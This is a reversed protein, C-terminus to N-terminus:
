QGKIKIHKILGEGLTSIEALVARENFLCQQKGDEQGEAVPVPVSSWGLRVRWEKRGLVVPKWMGAIVDGGYSDHFFLATSGFAAELDEVFLRVADHGIAEVDLAQELQLNKYVVRDERRGSKLRADAHHKVVSPKLYIRFDFDDLPSLFLAAWDEDSMRTGGSKLMEVAASALARVRVAVVREPRSGQTWVTGTPDLSTGVFWVVNNLGPDLKRWAQFRTMMEDTQAAPMDQSLSLDAVLPALAFDFRSLLHLCRFFATTSSGPTVWPAPHLFVQAAIVELIEESLHHLLLHSSVWKKLLRITSSLPPFRTCLNRIATTHIPAAIFTRKYAVLASTLSDRVSGHLSKEQLATQLLHEERDHYIRTRFCIPSLGPAPSPTIIDLFSTNFHGSAASETNELGVRTTINPDSASLLEALKLLFAIKTHQIASLSDPWRTSSDFQILIDIPEAASPLLPHNTTSSRLAAGSPSISRIPLPLDELGHLTSALAQYANNILRYADKAGLSPDYTLISPELDRSTLSVSSPLLKFHHSCLHRVIQLTVPTGSTWVLSETISGDKFRRREAKEGWFEQFEAAEDPEEASPGRDVLRAVNEPNTLLGIELLCDEGSSSDQKAAWRQEEPLKFDIFSVRDGLGRVLAGHLKELYRRQESTTHLNESPLRVSLIEDYQLSPEVVRLVFVSEFNDPHKGNVAALSIQAHRRLSQYSWSGMKFLVNVGTAADFLVPLNSRPIEVGVSGVVLPDRLDRGALVQLMAKFFQLSSYQKSFLPHGRIGGGRLLLACMLAWESYGFGGATTPSSFGRQHLWIQGIRCADDFASSRVSELTNDNEVVSAASRLCSNYFPTPQQGCGGGEENASPQRLCNKTPSTRDLPIASSPLEFSIRFEFKSLQTEKPTVLLIPRLDVGDANIFSLDFDEGATNKIELAVCALHFAAKHFARNNLYDKDQLVTDPLLVKLDIFNEAKISLGKALAGGVLIQSPPIFEFKYNTEKTPHPRPFPINIGKKRFSKLAEIATVPPRQPTQRIISELKNVVVLWKSQLKEYNPKTEQSLETVQLSLVSSKNIGGTPMINLNKSTTGNLKPKFDSHSSPRPKANQNVLQPGEDSSSAEESTNSDGDPDKHALKRRKLARHEPHKARMTM